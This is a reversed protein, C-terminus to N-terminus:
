RDLEVITPGGDGTPLQMRAERLIKGPRAITLDVDSSMTVDAGMARQQVGSLILSYRM